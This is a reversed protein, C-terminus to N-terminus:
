SRMSFFNPRTINVRWICTKNSSSKSKFMIIIIRTVNPKIIWIAQYNRVKIMFIEIRKHIIMSIKIRNKSKM